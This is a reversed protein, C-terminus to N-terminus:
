SAKLMYQTPWLGFLIAFSASALAISPISVFFNLEYVNCLLAVIWPVMLFCGLRVYRFSVTHLRQSMGHVFLTSIGSSLATSIAAGVVGWKPITLFCLALQSAAGVGVAVISWHTQGEKLLGINLPAEMGRFVLAICLCALVPSSYIVQPAFWHMLLESGAWLLAGASGYILAMKEAAGAFFAQGHDSDRLHEFRATPWWLAVPTMIFSMAGAVKLAVVYTGLVEPAVFREVVFRDVSNLVAALLAAALLPLGYRMAGGMTGSQICDSTFVPGSRLLLIGSSAASLSVAAAWWMLLESASKVIPLKALVGLAVLLTVCGFKVIVGTAYATARNESRAAALVIGLSAEALVVLPLGITALIDRYALWVVSGAAVAVLCAFWWIRAVLTRLAVSAAIGDQNVLKLIGWNTGLQAVMALMAIIPELLGWRGYEAPGLARVLLPVLLFQLGAQIVNSAFYAGVKPIKM